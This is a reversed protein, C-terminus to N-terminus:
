EVCDLEDQIAETLRSARVDCGGEANPFVCVTFDEHEIRARCADLFDHVEMM